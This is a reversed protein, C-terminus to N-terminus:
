SYTTNLVSRALSGAPHTPLYTPPHKSPQSAPHSPLFTLSHTLSHTVSQALSRALSRTLCRSREDPGCFLSSSRFRCRRGAVLASAASSPGSPFTHGAESFNCLPVPLSYVFAPRLAPSPAGFYTLNNLVKKKEEALSLPFLAHCCPSWRLGRRGAEWDALGVARGAPWGRAQRGGARGGAHWGSAM